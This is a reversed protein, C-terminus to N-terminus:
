FTVKYITDMRNTFSRTQKRIMIMRSSDASPPIYHDSYYRKLLDLKKESRSDDALDMSRLYGNLMASELRTHYMLNPNAGVLFNKFDERTPDIPNTWQDNIKWSILVYETHTIVEDYFFPGPILYWKYLKGAMQSSLIAPNVILLSSIALHCMILVGIPQNFRQRKM